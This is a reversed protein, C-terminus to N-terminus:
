FIGNLVPVFDVLQLCPPPAPAGLLNIAGGGDRGVQVPNPSRYCAGLINTSGASPGFFDERDVPLRVVTTPNAFLFIKAGGPPTLGLQEGHDIIANQTNLNGDEAALAVRYRGVISAGQVDLNNGAGAGAIMILPDNFAHFM